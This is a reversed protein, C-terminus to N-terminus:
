ADGMVLAPASVLDTKDIEQWAKELWTKLEVRTGVTLGGSEIIQSPTYDLAAQLVDAASYFLEPLVMVGACRPDSTITMRASSEEWRRFTAAKGFFENLVILYADSIQLLGSKHSETVLVVSDPTKGMLFFVVVRYGLETAVTRLTDKREGILATAPMNIVITEAESTELIDLACLWEESVRLDADGIM